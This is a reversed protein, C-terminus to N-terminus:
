HLHTMHTQPQTHKTNTDQCVPVLADSDATDYSNAIVPASEFCCFGNLM